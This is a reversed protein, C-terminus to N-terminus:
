RRTFQPLIFTLQCEPKTYESCSLIGRRVIREPGKDPWVELNVMTKLKESSARFTEPGSIFQADLVGTPSLLLFFEASGKKSGVDPVGFTRVRGLEEVPLMASVKALSGARPLRGRVKRLKSDAAVALEWTHQAAAYKGQREYIQGLHDGAEGSQSLRWAASVFREASGLDGLRFCSWGYTDWYSALSNVRQLDEQTSSAIELDKLQSELNAVINKAAERALEVEIGAETLWYAVNNKIDLSSEASNLVEKALSVGEEKAGSHLLAEVLVAQLQFDAPSARLAHKIPAVSESYRETSKLLAALALVAPKSAGNSNVCQQLTQVADDERNLRKQLEAMTLFAYENDPHLQVEKRLDSIAEDTRNEASALMGLSFWVGRSDPNKRQALLIADRAANIHGAQAEEFGQKLLHVIEPDDATSTKEPTDGQRNVLQVMQSQEDWLDRKLKTWEDWENLSVSASKVSLRREVCYVRNRLSYSSDFDVFPTHLDTHGPAELTFGSPLIVEARYVIQGTLGLEVPTKPRVGAESTAFDLPPLPPSIRHNAWDSYNKREYDYSYHLPEDTNNANTVVVNSVEGGFGWATSISQMLQQWQNASLEHLAERIVLEFDGRLTVDLHASLTGDASLTAVVDYVESRPYISSQPTEALFPPKGDSVVLAKKHRLTPLLMGYPSIEPTSDLWEIDNGKPIATILHDFQSPSPLDENLESGTGILVPWAQIHVAKLLAALLTHKDKCDGYQNALVQDASHPQYHGVGFSLSVYRFQSSVYRYIARQKAEDTTLGRTLQLAKAEVTPTVASRPSALVQYWRGVEEWTRFTTMQISPLEPAEEIGTESKNAPRQALNSTKWSYVKSGNEERVQPALMPSKVAIYKDKPVRIEVTEDLVIGNKVFAQTYWFHGPVEPIRRTVEYQFELISGVDLGRVPVQKQRFDNFTPAAAELPSASEQIDNFPTEIRTGDHKTVRIYAFKVQEHDASFPVTIMGLARIGADSQLKVRVKQERSGTGDLSFSVKTQLSEIVYPEKSYDNSAYASPSAIAAFVICVLAAFITIQRCHVYRPM